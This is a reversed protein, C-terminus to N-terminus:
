LMDEVSDLAYDQEPTSMVLAERKDSLPAISPEAPKRVIHPVLKKWREPQKDGKKPMIISELQPPSKLSMDYIVDDRYRWTKKLLAKVAEPDSWQRAGERGGVLKYQLVPFLTPDNDSDRLVKNVRSEIAKVWGEVLPVLAMMRGLTALDEPPVNVNVVKAITEVPTTADYDKFVADEIRRRLAPCSAKADCFKCQTDGPALFLGEWESPHVDGNEIATSAHLAQQAQERVRLAFAKLHDITCTWEKPASSGPANPQHIVARFTAPEEAMMFGFEELAGLGYIMCQENDDPSVETYGFKLDHCQIERDLLIVVDGAGTAGEEGTLHGCPLRQEVMLVAGPASAYDVISDVYTQVGEAMKATVEMGYKRPMFAGRNELTFSGVCRMWRSAGSPSLNAHEYDEAEIVRGIYGAAPTYAEHREQWDRLVMAALAHAITGEDSYTTHGM